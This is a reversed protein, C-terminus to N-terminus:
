LLLKRGELSALQYSAYRPGSAYHRTTLLSPVIVAILGGLSIVSLLIIIGTKKVGEPLNLIM